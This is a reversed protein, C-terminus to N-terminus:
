DTIVQQLRTNRRQRQGPRDVGVDPAAEATVERPRCGVATPAEVGYESSNLTLTSCILTLGLSQQM